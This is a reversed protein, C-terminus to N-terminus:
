MKEPASVGLFDLANTLTIKTALLLALRIIEKGTTDYKLYSKAKTIWDSKKGIGKNELM